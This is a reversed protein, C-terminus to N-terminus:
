SKGSVSKKKQVWTFSQEETLPTHGLKATVIAQYVNEYFVRM